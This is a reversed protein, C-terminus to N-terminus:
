LYFLWELLKMEKKKYLKSLNYLICCCGDTIAGKEDNQQREGKVIPCDNAAGTKKAM